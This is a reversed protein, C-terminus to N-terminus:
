SFEPIGAYQNESFCETYGKFRESPKFKFLKFHKQLYKELDYAEFSKMPQFYLCSAKYNTKSEISIIRNKVNNSIGIKFFEEDESSIKLLYLSSVNIMECYSSRSYGCAGSISKKMTAIIDGCKPCGQGSWHASPMQLFTGHQSCKIKVKINNRVYVSESYDYKDGHILISKDIFVEQNFAQERSVRDIACKACGKGQLHNTYLMEFEGHTKCEIKIFKDCGGYFSNEYSYEGNHILSLKKFIFIQKDGDDVLNNVKLQKPPYSSVRCKFNLDLYKFYVINSDVKLFEYGQEKGINILTNMM